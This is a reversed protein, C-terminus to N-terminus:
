TLEVKLLKRRYNDYNPCYKYLIDYFNQSHNFVFCHCLEHIIVSKIIDEHFHILSYSYTLTKSRRNNTGYRSRMLRLKVSYTPAQMEIAAKQTQLNLYLLFWNKIKKHFDIQSKFVIKEDKLTIDGPYTLSHKEGFLYIYEFTELQFVIHKSILRSAFKDLGSKLTELSTRNPCSILFNVGNYRYHINKIRKYTVAVLYEKNEHLYLFKDKMSLM